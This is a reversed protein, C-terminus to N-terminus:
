LRFLFHVIDDGGRQLQLCNALFVAPSEAENASDRRLPPTFWPEGNVRIKSQQSTKARFFRENPRQELHKGGSSGIGSFKSQAVTDKENLIGRTDTQINRQSSEGKLYV